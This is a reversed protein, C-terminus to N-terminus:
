RLYQITIRIKLLEGSEGADELAVGLIMGPDSAKMAVGSVDSSTIPDGRMIKGNEDNYRVYSIGSTRIPIKYGRPDPKVGPNENYYVGLLYPDYAETCIDFNRGKYTLVPSSLVTGNIYEKPPTIEGESQAWATIFSFIAAILVLTRKM